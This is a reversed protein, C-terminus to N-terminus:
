IEIRKPYYIDIDRKVLPNNVYRVNDITYDMDDPFKGFLWHNVKKHTDNELCKHIGSNGTMDGLLTGNYEFNHSIFEGKPVTNTVVVITRCNNYNQCTSISNYLYHQDSVAMKFIDNAYQESMIEQSSLLEITDYVTSNYTFDFTTWGNTGIISIDDLMIINEHLYVVREIPKIGAVLNGYSAELNGNFCEHELDGDIFFVMEYYDKLHDLFNFLVSRDSTINGAVICYLSTAKNDWSFNDLTSLNFDSILDFQM